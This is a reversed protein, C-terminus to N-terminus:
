IEVDGDTCHVVTAPINDFPSGWNTSGQGLTVNGWDSMTGEYQINTLNTCGYFCDKKIYEVSKPITVSTLQSCGMLAFEGLGGIQGLNINNLNSAGNLASNGLSGCPISISTINEVKSTFPSTEQYNGTITKVPSDFVITGKQDYYHEVAPNYSKCHIWGYGDENLPVISSDNTTYWIENDAPGVVPEPIFNYMVTDTEESYAVYPEEQKARAEHDATFQGKILELYKM